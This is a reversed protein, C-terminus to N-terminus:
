LYISFTDARATWCNLQVQMNCSRVKMQQDVCARYEKVEQACDLTRGPSSAYCHSVTHALSACIPAAHALPTQSRYLCGLSCCLQFCGYTMGQWTTPDCVWHRCLTAEHWWQICDHALIRISCATEPWWTQWTLHVYYERWSRNSTM